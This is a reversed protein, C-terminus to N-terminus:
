TRCFVRGEKIGCVNYWAGLGEDVHIVNGWLCRRPVLSLSLEYQHGSAYVYM